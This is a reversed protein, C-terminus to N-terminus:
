DSKQSTTEPVSRDILAGIITLALVLGAIFVFLPAYTVLYSASSSAIVTVINSIGIDM